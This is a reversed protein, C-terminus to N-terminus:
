LQNIKEKQIKEYPSHVHEFTAIKGRDESNEIEAIM